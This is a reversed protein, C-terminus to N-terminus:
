YFGSVFSGGSSLGVIDKIVGFILTDGADSLHPAQEQPYDKRREKTKDKEYGNTGVKMPTLKCSLAWDDANRSNYKFLPISADQHSLIREWMEYRYQHSPTQGIDILEVEWSGFEDEKSLMESFEQYYAFDIVASTGKATHDYYYRVKKSSHHQYYAKFKLALHKLKNPHLVYLSNLFRYEDGYRQGVVLGNISGGYDLAVDLPQGSLVDDDMRSDVHSAQNLDYNIGDLYTNNYKVYGHKEDSLDPYFNMKVSGQKKNLISTNFSLPSLTRSMQTFYAPGLIDFNSFSDAESYYIMQPIGNVANGKRLENILKECEKIKFTYRKQTQPSAKSLSLKMRQIERQLDLVANVRNLNQKEKYLKEKDLLWLGKEATPMDSTLLISHHSAHKGFLALHGRNAPLLEEEFRQQNLFKAEDGVIWDINLGNASNPRDQSVLTMASGNRWHMLYQAKLPCNYPREWKWSAPAFEGFFFDRGRIYGHRELGELIGPLTKTLMSQYTDAVMVGLSRPMDFVNDIIRPAIRGSSKGTGRAWIDIEVPANVLNARLQPPNYYVKKINEDSM